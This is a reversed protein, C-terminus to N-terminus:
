TFTEVCVVGNNRLGFGNYVVEPTSTTVLVEGRDTLAWGGSYDEIDGTSSIVMVGLLTRAIGREYVVLDSTPWETVYLRGDPSVAFGNLYVTGVPPAEGDGLPSTGLVGESSVAIGQSYGAAEWDTPADADITQEVWASWSGDTADFVRIEFTELGEEFDFTCDDNVVVSTEDYGLQDVRWQIQDGVDPPTDFELTFADPDTNVSAVVVYDTGVVPVVTVSISGDEDDTNTLTLTATGFKPRPATGSSSCPFEASDADSTTVPLNIPGNDQAISISGLDFNSGNATNSSSDLEIIDDGNVNDIVPGAAAGAGAFANIQAVTTENDASTYNFEEAGAPDLLYYFGFNSVGTAIETYAGDPTYSGSSGERVVFVVGSDNPPTVSGSTHTTTGTQTAGNSTAGSQDDSVETYAAVCVRTTDSQSGSLTIVVTQGANTAEAIGYFIQVRGSDSVEIARLATYTTGAADTVSSVTRTVNTTSYAVIILDGIGVAGGLSITTASSSGGTFSPVSVVVAAQQLTAM